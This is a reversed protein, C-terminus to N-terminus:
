DEVEKIFYTMYAGWNRASVEQIKNELLIKFM